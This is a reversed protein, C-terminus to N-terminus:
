AYMKRGIEHVSKVKAVKMHTPACHVSQACTLWQRNEGTCRANGGDIGRWQEQGSVLRMELSIVVTLM